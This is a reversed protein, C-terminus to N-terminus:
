AKWKLEDIQKQIASYVEFTIVGSNGQTVYGDRHKTSSYVVIEKSDLYFEVCDTRIMGIRHMESAEAVKTYQIANSSFLKEDKKHIEQKYGLKEFKDKASM